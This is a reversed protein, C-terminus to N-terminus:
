IDDCKGDLYTHSSYLIPLDISNNVSKTTSVNTEILVIQGEEGISNQDVQLNIEMGAHFDKTENQQNQCKFHFEVERM